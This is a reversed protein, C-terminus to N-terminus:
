AATTKQTLFQGHPNDFIMLWRGDPQKRLIAVSLGSQNVATGDPLTGNMTWPTFHAAIDGNVFVEHGHFRYNPNIAFLEEFAQRIAAGDSVPREPEFVIIAEPEYTALIGALDKRHFAAVMNEITQLVRQKEQEM